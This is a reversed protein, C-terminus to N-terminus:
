ISIEVLDDLADELAPFSFQFGSELTRRPIVNQGELLISASEAGVLWAVLSQPARWVIPRNLHRAFARIFEESTVQDPAVANFRGSLSRNDILHVFLDACDDIHIWPFPQRGDGIVCGLGLCFPLRIIPLFGRSQGVRWLRGWFSERRVAGLVIAIRAKAHRVRSTDVGEAAEEWLGVLEAPFDIGMPEAEEDLEPYTDVSGIEGTGYFCIGATSIFVEPPYHSANIAEVLTQTTEVRSQIVESRYAADWRRRPNLIHLGALNVVADCPPLGDKALRDWSIRDPGEFRSIWVVEDGRARLRETIATGVFGSGGGIIIRRAM